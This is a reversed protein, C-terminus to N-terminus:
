DVYELSTGDNFIIELDFKIYDAPLDFSKLVQDIVDRKNTDKSITLNKAKQYISDFAAKGRLHENNIDDDVEGGIFGSNDYNIEAEYEKQEEYTVELDIESFDLKEMQSKMKYQDHTNHLPNLNNTNTTEGNDNLTVNKQDTNDTENTQGGCASLLAICFVSLSNFLIQKM